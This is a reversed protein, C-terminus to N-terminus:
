YRFADRMDDHLAGPRVPLRHEVNQFVRNLYIDGVRLFHLREGVVFYVCLALHLIGTALHRHDTGQVPWRGDPMWGGVGNCHSQM